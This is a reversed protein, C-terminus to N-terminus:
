EAFSISKKEASCTYTYSKVVRNDEQADHSYVVGTGTLTMSNEGSGATVAGTAAVRTLAVWERVESEVTEEVNFFTEGADRLNRKTKNKSVLINDGAAFNKLAM